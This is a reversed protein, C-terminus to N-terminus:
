TRVPSLLHDLQDIFLLRGGLLSAASGDRGAFDGAESRRSSRCFGVLDGLKALGPGTSRALGRSGELVSAGALCVVSHLVM